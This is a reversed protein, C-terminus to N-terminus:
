MDEKFVPMIKINFDFEKEELRYKNLLEPGCSNSGSGSMKYDLIVVTEARKKLQHPHAAAALEEPTYHAANFSFDTQGRFALGMGMLNSVTAKTTGCHSGNEQPRLYNEMLANVSTLYKGMKTCHHKDIYSEYPGYGIYEVEENGKPMILQLGFRPLFNIQEGVKVSTSLNIEGYADVSWTAKAQLVPVKVKSGISFESEIIVKEDTQKFNCSYIHQETREMGLAGWTNKVNRDNDMPARWIVFRSPEALLAVGNKEMATFAAHYLDFQYSFDFGKITLINEKQTTALSGKRRFFSETVTKVPLPMQTFGVEYGTQSWLMDTKQVASLTLYCPEKAQAPLSYPLTLEKVSHPAIDLLEINGMQLLEGNSEIRWILKYLDLNTFDFLNKVKIIGKQLNVEEFGVPAIINKLELLGTHPTRDPYVLGDMCFNVDHPWEGFDGGYAYFPTGDPTTTEIGHDCWEWVCGGMLKDYKYIVDWYDKLDGPGNGMAHCYECQFVPKQTDPNTALEELESISAYMRSEIDIQTQDEIGKYRPAAGEYHVPRSFDREKTWRAAAVHNLDYGAENGMSWIVVSPHNKYREVMRSIRDIFAGEWEALKGFYRYEDINNKADKCIVGNCELDAESIVYFGLQDCLELFRPNNPYHSTRICNINHRKMLLLENKIFNMPVTQGLSPHSDHRNVGKLKVPVGNIKFIGGATDIRRIGINFIIVEAGASLVLKYLVPQEANWLKPQEIKLYFTGKGDINGKSSGVISGDEELLEAKIEVAGFTSLECNLTASSFDQAISQRCFVDNIHKKDRALLYVDRFIGSFRWMDQDELYSGDCWKLVAASLNNEGAKLYPSINFEAPVRSGKSFGVLQGNVWLYICSNVGEFVIYTEKGQWDEPINFKHIYTGVPNDTPVYPPDFNYPYAANTYQLQDYGNTQWCSPVILKDWGECNYDFEFFAGDVEALNKNYKFNWSGNLSLYYPSAGRKNSLANVKTNYPIYYARNPERNSHLLKPDEYYKPLNLM